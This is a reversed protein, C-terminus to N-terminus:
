EAKAAEEGDRLRKAAECVEDLEAMTFEYHYKAALEILQEKFADSAPIAAFEENLAENTDLANFFNIINEVAM